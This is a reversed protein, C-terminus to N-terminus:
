KGATIAALSGITPFPDLTIKGDPQVNISFFSKRYPGIGLEDAISIDKIAAYFGSILNPFFQRQRHTDIAIHHIKELQMRKFHSASCTGANRQVWDMQSLIHDINPKQSISDMLTLPRYWALFDFARGADIILFAGWGDPKWGSDSLANEKYYPNICEGQCTPYVLLDGVNMLLPQPKKLTKRPMCAAPPSLLKERLEALIKRRKILDSSMMGLNEHISIDRGTDILNLATERVRDSAMNRKAFQDALVLWFISHEPAEPDNAIEIETECLIEVLRNTEFPLRIVAAITSRLDAAFDGSYLGTGWTGM